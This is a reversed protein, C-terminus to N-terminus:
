KGVKGLANKIFLNAGFMLVFLLMSICSAYGVEFRTNGYDELHHMITHARYDVSPFGCLATVVGGFGFTQTMAM